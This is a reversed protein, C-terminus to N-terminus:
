NARFPGTEEIKVPYGEINGPIQSKAYETLDVIFVKICPSGECSGLGTGTVGPIAMLKPTNEKLVKEISNQMSFLKDQNSRSGRIM